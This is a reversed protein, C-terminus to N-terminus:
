LHATSELMPELNEVTTELDKQEEQRLERRGFRISYFIKTLRRITDFAENPLFALSDSFEAPTQHGPRFIQRRELLTTLQEYFGLQRALRIQQATPLSDLGIKAARRRIRRRQRILRFLQFCLGLLALVLVLTIVMAESFKVGDGNFWDTLHRILGDWGRQVSRSASRPNIKSRIMANVVSHDLSSILNERREGDYAVVNEAWKYELWDFFHKVSQWASRQAAGSTDNGSTPDFTRWGDPTKVEVWAHAHSQRVVYYHGLAEDYEDSRFGTVMRAQMGLSQCMLVMASAFYECHGKKWQYLFQVVPDKSRDNEEATLDLTYSFTSRLHKEINTAIEQDLASIPEKASRLIGLARGQEDVGSVEARRAYQAIEPPIAQESGRSPAVPSRAIPFLHRSNDVVRDVFNSEVSTNRATIVYDLRQTLSDAFSLTEDEGSFHLNSIPRSASFNVLGPLVFLTDTGTPHLAIKLRYLDGSVAQLLRRELSTGSVNIDDSHLNDSSTREWNRQKSNYRGFTRGRLLLPQTGEILRDNKWFQVQAVIENNQSIRNIDGLAVEGSFGTLSPRQFQLQGFMGAGVGRPCFLFVFVAMGIGVISVLAALRRMSRALYRQDQRFTIENLKEFPLTQARLAYENEVKLHFLLCVYLSIFLYVILLVGFALSSTSIAGAVMLLLSLVLLQAYDRNARLEFLKVLQLFVLFQGITIIPPYPSRLAQFTYILAVLTILNAVLRPFPRFRDVKVLWAHLGLVSVALLWLGPAEIALAFGTMGLFLLLYLAPKFQRIDYM